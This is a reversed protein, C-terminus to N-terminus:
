KSNKTQPRLKLHIHELLLLERWRGPRDLAHLRRARASQAADTLREEGATHSRRAREQGAAGGQTRSRAFPESWWSLWKPRRSRSALLPARCTYSSALLSCCARKNRVLRGAGGKAVWGIRLDPQEGNENHECSERTTLMWKTSTM